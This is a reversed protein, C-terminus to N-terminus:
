NKSCGEDLEMFLEERTLVRGLYRRIDELNIRGSEECDTAVCDEAVIVHYDLNHADTATARVCCNTKVGCLIVNQIGNERLVLDFDTGFFASYRRKRIVYDEPLVELDPHIEEGGTKEVCCKRMENLNRDPKGERYCHQIFVIKMGRRRCGDLLSKVNPVIDRSSEAYACGGECTFDYLMDIIVLASKKVDIM